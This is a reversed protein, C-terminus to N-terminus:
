FESKVCKRCLKFIYISSMKHESESEYPVEFVNWLIQLYLRLYWWIMGNNPISLFTTEVIEQRIVKCVIDYWELRPQCVADFTDALFNLSTFKLNFYKFLRSILFGFWFIQVAQTCKWCIILCTFTLPLADWCHLRKLVTFVEQWM